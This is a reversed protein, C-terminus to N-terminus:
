NVSLQRKEPKGFPPSYFYEYQGLDPAKKLRGGWQDALRDADNYGVKFCYLYACQNRVNPPVQTVRQTIFHTRHGYHRAHTALKERKKKEKTKGLFDGAEDVFLSAGRIRAALDIFQDPSATVRDAPWNPDKMPDLVLVNINEQQYRAALKQALTTKGTLINGTILVHAM